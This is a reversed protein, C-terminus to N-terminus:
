VGGWRLKFLMAKNPDRIGVVFEDEYPDPRNAHYWIWDAMTDQKGSACRGVNGQLWDVVDDADNKSVRYKTWDKIM